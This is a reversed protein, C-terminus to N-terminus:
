RRQRGNLTPHHPPRADRRVRHRGAHQQGAGRSAAPGIAVRAMANLGTAQFLDGAATALGIPGDSVVNENGLANWDDAAELIDGLDKPQSQYTYAM